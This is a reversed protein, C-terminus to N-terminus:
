ESVIVQVNRANVIDATPTVQYAVIMDNGDRVVGTVQGIPIGRPVYDQYGNTYVYDNEEVEDSPSLLEFTLINEDADYSNIMGNVEKDNSIAMCPITLIINESSILEVTSYNKDVEDVFGILGAQYVVPMGSKIGNASGGDITLTNDWSVINRAVVETNIFGIQKVDEYKAIEQNIQEDDKYMKELDKYDQTLISLESELALNKTQLTDNSNELLILESTLTKKEKLYTMLENTKSGVASFVESTINNASYILNNGIGIFLLLNLVLIIVLLIILNKFIKKNM